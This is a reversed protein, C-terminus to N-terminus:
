RSSVSEAPLECLFMHSFQSDYFRNGKLVVFNRNRSQIPSNGDPILDFEVKKGSLWLWENRRAYGGLLIKSKAFPKLEKKVRAALEPTDLCALRGGLLECYRCAVNWLMGSDILLFTREGVTFKRKVLPLPGAQKLHENRREYDKEDWECLFLPNRTTSTVPRWIRGATIMLCDRNAKTKSIKWPGFNVERRSHLWIWKKGVRRAGLLTSWSNFLPIATRLATQQKLSTIEALRGGLLRCLDNAQNWDFSGLNAGFLEFVKGGMRAQHPSSIYFHRDFYDPTGPAIVIRFGIEPPICQFMKYSSRTYCQKEVSLFSGGLTAISDTPGLWNHPLVMEAVNGYIDFLGLRNPKKSGVPWSRQESNDKFWAREAFPTLDPGLWANNAALLWEEENPPRVIYGPPLQEANQMYDTLKSCYFLVDNWSIREAPTNSYPSKHPTIELLHTLHEHPVETRGIWFCYPVKVVKGTVPLKVVGPPVFGLPPMGSYQSTSWNKGCRPGTWGNYLKKDFEALDTRLENLRVPDLYVSLPTSLYGHMAGSAALGAAFDGTDAPLGPILKEASEQLHARLKEGTKAALPWNEAGEASRLDAALREYEELRDPLYNQLQLGLLERRDATLQEFARIHRRMQETRVYKRHSRVLLIGAATLLVVTLVTFMTLIRRFREENLIRWNRFNERWIDWRTPKELKEPLGSLFEDATKFRKKPDANCMRVLAPYIQRCVEIRLDMPLQPYQKPPNGTVMCYFVKGLAYLDGEQTNNEGNLAEPPIFGLTGAFSASQGVEIVLGPDSLKPVGNVFIVNDPKIDRHILNAQHMVQVGALLGRIIEIAEEPTFRRHIKFLNGLTAPRYEGNEGCDDAAEMIYYFGDETEGIHFVKLLNPHKGSVQMYNRLGTLERDSNHPASVVKIVIKQGIPNKALYTIGFSGNGCRGLIECGSFTDGAKLFVSMEGIRWQSNALATFYGNVAPFDLRIEANKM